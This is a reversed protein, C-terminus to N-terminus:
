GLVRHSYILTDARNYLEAQIPLDVPQDTLFLVMGNEVNDEVVTGCKAILCVRTVDQGHDAVFGGAYFHNPMGGGGLNAWAREVVPGPNHGMIGDGAAGRFLWNGQTDQEVYCTFYIESGQENEFVVIYVIRGPLSREKLFRLTKNKTEPTNEQPTGVPIKGPSAVLLRTLRNIIEQKPDQHAM